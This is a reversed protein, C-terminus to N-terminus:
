QSTAPGGGQWHIHKLKQPAERVGQVRARLEESLEAWAETQSVSAFLERCCFVCLRTLQPANCAHAHTMLPVVNYLDVIDNHAFWAEVASKLHAYMWMDALRLLTCCLAVTADTPALSAVTAGAYLYDLWFDVTEATLWEPLEVVTGSWGDAGGAAAGGGGGGGGCRGMADSGAGSFMARFAESSLALLLKHAHRAGGGAFLVLRVDSLEASNKLAPLLARTMSRLPPEGRVHVEPLVLEQMSVSGAVRLLADVPALYKPTALAGQTTGLSSSLDVCIARAAVLRGDDLVVCPTAGGGLASRIAPAAGPVRQVARLLAALCGLVVGQLPEVLAAPLRKDAAAAAAAAAAPAAAPPPPAAAGAGSGGVELACAWMAASSKLHNLVSRWQPPHQTRMRRLLEAPARDFCPPLLQTTTWCLHADLALAAGSSFSTWQWRGAHVAKEGGAEEDSRALLSDSAGGSPMSAMLQLAQEQAAMHEASGFDTGCKAADDGGGGGGRGGGREDELMEAMDGMLCHQRGPARSKKARSGGGGAGGAKGSGGGVGSSLQEVRRDLDRWVKPSPRKAWCHGGGGGGDEPAGEGGRRSAATYGDAFPWPALSMDRVPVFRVHGLRGFEEASWTTSLTAYREVLFRCLLDGCERARVANEQEAVIHAAVEFCPFRLLSAMGAHRLCVMADKDEAYEPPLVTLASATVLSPGAVAGGRAAIDAGASVAGDNGGGGDRALPQARVTAMIQAFVADAPDVVSCCRCRRGGDLQVVEQEEIHRMLQKGMEGAGRGWAEARGAARLVALVAPLPMDGLNPGVLRALFPLTQSRGVQALRLLAREPERRLSLLLPAVASESLLTDWQSLPQRASAAADAPSAWPKDEFADSSLAVFPAREGGSGGAGLTAFIPLRKVLEAVAVARGNARLTRARRGVSLGLDDELGASSSPAPPHQAQAGGFWRLVCGRLQECADANAAAAGASGGGGFAPADASAVARILRMRSSRGPAAEYDASDELARALRQLQLEASGGADRPSAAPEAAHLFLAGFSALLVVESRECDACAAAAAGAAPDVPAVLVSRAAAHQLSVILAGGCVPVLPWTGFGLSALSALTSVGGASALTAATSASHAAARGSASSRVRHDSRGGGWKLGGHGARKGHAWAEDGDDGPAGGGEDDGSSYDAAQEPAGGGSGEDDDSVAAGGADTPPPAPLVGQEDLFMWLLALMRQVQEAQAAPLTPAAEGTDVMAASAGGGSGGGHAAHADSNSGEQEAAPHQSLWKKASKKAKKGYVPRPKAAKGSGRGLGTVDISSGRNATSSNDVMRLARQEAGNLLLDGGEGVACRVCGRGRWESPLFLDLGIKPLLAASLNELNFDGGVLAPARRLLQAFLATADDTAAAAVAAAAAAATAPVATEVVLRYSGLLPAFRPAVVICVPSAKPSAAAPAGKVRKSGKTKKGKGRVALVAPGLPPAADDTAADDLKRRVATFRSKCGCGRREPRLPILKLGVLDHVTLAAEALEAVAAPEAGEDEASSSNAGGDTAVTAASVAAANRQAPTWDSQWSSQLLYRLLTAVVAKEMDAGRLGRLVSRASTLRPKVGARRMSRLVWSPVAAAVCIGARALADLFDGGGKGGSCPALAARLADDIFSARSLGAWEEATGTACWFLPADDAEVLRVM